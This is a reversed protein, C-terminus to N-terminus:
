AGEGFTARLTSTLWAADVGAFECWVRRSEAWPGRRAFLFAETRELDLLARGRLSARRRALRQYDKIAQRMIETGLRHIPELARDTAERYAMVSDTADIMQM